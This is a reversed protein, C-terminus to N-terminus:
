LYDSRHVASPPLDVQDTRPIYDFGIRTLEPIVSRQDTRILPIADVLNSKRPPPEFPIDDEKYIDHLSPITTEPEVILYKATKLVLGAHKAWSRPWSGEPEILRAYLRADHSALSKATRALTCLYLITRRISTTGIVCRQCLSGDLTPQTRTSSNLGQLPLFNPM